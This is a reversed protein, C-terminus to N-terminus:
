EKLFSQLYSNTSRPTLFLNILLLYRLIIGYQRISINRVNALGSGSVVREVSIRHKQSFKHKLYQLLEVELQSTICFKEGFIFIM